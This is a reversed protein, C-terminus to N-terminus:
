AVPVQQRDIGVDFIGLDYDLVEVLDQEVFVSVNRRADGRYLCTPECHLTMEKTIKSPDIIAGAKDGADFRDRGENIICIVTIYKLV